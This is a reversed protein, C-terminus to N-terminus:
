AQSLLLVNSQGDPSRQIEYRFVNRATLRDVIEAEAAPLDGARPPQALPLTERLPRDILGLDDYEDKRVFLANQSLLQEQQQEAATQRGTADPPRPPLFVLVSDIDDVYRFTYLALELAERRLLRNRELTPQGEPISCNTGLGCLVYVLSDELSHGSYRPEDLFLSQQDVAAAVLPPNMVEPSNPLVAVLPRGSPLRYTSSVHEAIERVRDSGEAKPQWASWSERTSTSDRDFTLVAFAIVGAGLILGLVGYALLFRGAHPAPQWDRPPAALLQEPEEAPELAATPEPVRVVPPAGAPGPAPLPAESASAHRSLDEAM